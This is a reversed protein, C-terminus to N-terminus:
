PGMLNPRLSMTNEERCQRCKSCEGMCSAEPLSPEKSVTWSLTTSLPRRKPDKTQRNGNRVKMTYQMSSTLKAGDWRKRGERVKSIKLGEFLYAVEAHSCSVKSQWHRTNPAPPWRTGARCAVLSM